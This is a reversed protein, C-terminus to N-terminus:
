PKLPVMPVPTPPLHEANDGWPQRRLLRRALWYALLSTFSYVISTGLAIGAVGLVNGLVIDALVNAFVAPVAIAILLGNAKLSNILRVFVLGIVYVPLHLVYLAQIHSVVATDSNTFAGGEYMLEVLPRSGLVLLLTIPVTVILSAGVMQRCATQMGSKDRASALHSLRPLSTTAFAYGLVSLLVTVVRSGYGLASVNGPGLRAAFVMDVIPNATLALASLAAPVCQRLVGAADPHSGRWSVAPLVGRRHCVVALVASQLVFGGGAAMALDRVDRLEPFAVLLTLMTVPIASPSLAAAAFYREGNLLTSFYHSMGGALMAPGTLLITLQIVLGSNTADGTFTLALLPSLLLLLVASAIAVAIYRNLVSGALRRAGNIGSVAKAEMLSPILSTSIAGGLVSAAISVITFTFIFADIDAGVGFRRAVAVERAAAISKAVLSLVTVLATSAVFRNRTLRIILRPLSLSGRRHRLRAPRDRQNGSNAM